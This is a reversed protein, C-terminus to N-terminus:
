GGCGGRVIHGGPSRPARRAAPRQRQRAFLSPTGSAALSDRHRTPACVPRSVPCAAVPAARACEACVGARGTAAGGGGGLCRGACRISLSPRPRRGPKLRSQLGPGTNSRRRRPGTRGDDEEVQAAATLPYPAVPAFFTRPPFPPSLPHNLIYSIPNYVRSFGLM